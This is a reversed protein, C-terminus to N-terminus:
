LHAWRVGTKIKSITKPSVSFRQAIAHQKEGTVLLERIALVDDRSLKQWHHPKTQMSVAWNIKPPPSFRGKRICDHVNDRITGVFLHLPDCCPPNDCHHCVQLNSIDGWLAAAVVRHPSLTKGEITMNGYGTSRRAGMWELCEGVRECRAFVASLNDRDSM